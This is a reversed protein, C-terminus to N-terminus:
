SSGECCVDIIRLLTCSATEATAAATASTPHPLAVEPEPAWPGELVVVARLAARVEAPEVAEGMVDTDEVVVEANLTPEEVGVLVVAVWTDMACHVLSM